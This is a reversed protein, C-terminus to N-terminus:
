STAAQWLVRRQDLSRELGAEALLLWHEWAYATNDINDPLEMHFCWEGGPVAPDPVIKHMQVVEITDGHHEGGPDHCVFLVRHVRWGTDGLFEAFTTENM